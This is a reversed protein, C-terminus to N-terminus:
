NELADHWVETAQAYKIIMIAVTLFWALGIILLSLIVAM